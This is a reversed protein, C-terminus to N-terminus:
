DDIFQAQLSLHHALERLAKMAPQSPRSNYRGYTQRIVRLRPFVEITVRHAFDNPMATLRLSLISRDGSRCLNVYDGVCHRMESGEVRLADEGTIEWVTFDGKRLLLPKRVVRPKWHRLVRRVRRSEREADRRNRIVERTRAIKAYHERARRRLTEGSADGPVRYGPKDRVMHVLYGMIRRSEEEDNWFGFPLRKLQQLVGNWRPWREFSIFDLVPAHVGMGEALWYVRADQLTSAKRPYTDRTFAKWSARTLGERRLIARVSGGAALEYFAPSGLTFPWPIDTRGYADTDLWVNEPVNRLVLGFPTDLYARPLEPDRLAHRRFVDFYVARANAGAHFFDITMRRFEFEWPQYRAVLDASVPADTRFLELDYGLYPGFDILYEATAALNHDTLERFNGFRARDAPQEILAAFLADPAPDDERHRVAYHLFYARQEAALAALAVPNGGTLDALLDLATPAPQLLRALETRDADARLTLTRLDELVAPTPAPGLLALAEPPSASPAAAPQASMKM